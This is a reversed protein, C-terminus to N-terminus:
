RRRASISSTIFWRRGEDTYQREGSIVPLRAATALKLFTARHTFLPPGDVVYLPTAPNWIVGARTLRPTAEQLIQLRKPSLEALMISDLINRAEERDRDALLEM